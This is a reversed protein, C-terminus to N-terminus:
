NVKAQKMPTGVSPVAAPRKPTTPPTSDVWDTFSFGLPDEGQLKILEVPDKSAIGNVYEVSLKASELFCDIWDWNNDVKWTNGTSRDGGRGCDVKNTFGRGYFFGEAFNKMEISSDQRVAVAAVIDPYDDEDLFESETLVATTEDIKLICHTTM